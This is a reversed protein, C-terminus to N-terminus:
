AFEATVLQYKKPDKTEGNAAASSEAAAAILYFMEKCSRFLQQERGERWYIIGQWTSHERFLIKISFSAIKGGRRCLTCAESSILQGYNIGYKTVDGASTEYEMFGGLSNALDVPSERQEVTESPINQFNGTVKGCYYSDIAVHCTSIVRCEQIKKHDGSLFQNMTLVLERESEFPVKVGKEIWKINGQWSAYYRYQVFVYFTALRGSREAEDSKKTRIMMTETGSFQREQVTQRPCGLQDFVKDMNSFMEILSEFLIGGSISDHFLVGKISNDDFEDVAITFYRDGNRVVSMRGVTM